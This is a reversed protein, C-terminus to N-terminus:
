MYTCTFIGGIYGKKVVNEYDNVVMFYYNGIGLNEYTAANWDIM